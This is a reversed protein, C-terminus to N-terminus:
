GFLCKKHKGGFDLPHCTCDLNMFFTFTFSNSKCPAAYVELDMKSSLELGEAWQM